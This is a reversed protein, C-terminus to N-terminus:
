LDREPIADPKLANELSMNCLLKVHDSQVLMKKIVNIVKKYIHMSSDNVLLHLITQIFEENIIFTKRSFCSWHKTVSLCALYVERPLDGGGGLIKNAYEFVKAVNEKL